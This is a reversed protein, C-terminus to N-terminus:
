WKRCLKGDHTTPSLKRLPSQGLLKPNGLRMDSAGLADAMVRANGGDHFGSFRNVTVHEEYRILFKLPDSHRSDDKGQHFEPSV